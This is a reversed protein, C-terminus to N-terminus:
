APCGPPATRFDLAHMGDVSILLVHQFPGNFQPQKNQNAAYIPSTAGTILLAQLATALVKKLM